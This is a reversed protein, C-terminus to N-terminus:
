EVLAVQEPVVEITTYKVGFNKAKERTKMWIDVRYSYRRNMRDQVIFVKDGYLDPMKVRSGFPLFNAAIINEKNHECVNFGNATICPSSDTQDVTSSYATVTVKRVATKTSSINKAQQTVSRKPPLPKETPKKQAAQVQVVHQNSQSDNNATNQLPQNNEQQDGILDLIDIGVMDLGFWIGVPQPISGTRYDPEESSASNEAGVSGLPM